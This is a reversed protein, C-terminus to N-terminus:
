TQAVHDPTGADPDWLVSREQAIDRVSDHVDTQKPYYEELTGDDRKRFYRKPRNKRDIYKVSSPLGLPM